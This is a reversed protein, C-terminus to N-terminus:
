AMMPSISASPRIAAVLVPTSSPISTAWRSYKVLPRWPGKTLSTCSAVRSALRFGFLSGASGGRTSSM